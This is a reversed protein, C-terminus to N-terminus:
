DDSNVINLEQYKPLIKDYLEEKKINSLNETQVNVFDVFSQLGEQARQKIFSLLEADLVM